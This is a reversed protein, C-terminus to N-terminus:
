GLQQSRLVTKEVLDKIRSLDVRDKTVDHGARQEYMQRTRVDCLDAMCKSGEYVEDEKGVIHLTPIQVRSKVVGPHLSRSYFHERDYPIDAWTHMLCRLAPHILTTDRIHPAEEPHSAAYENFKKVEDLNASPLRRFSHHDTVEIGESRDPSFPINGCIFIM